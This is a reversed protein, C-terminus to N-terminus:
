IAITTYSQANPNGHEHYSCLLRAGSTMENFNVAYGILKGMPKVAANAMKRLQAPTYTSIASGSKGTITILM